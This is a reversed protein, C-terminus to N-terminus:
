DKENYKKLIYKHFHEENYIQNEEIYDYIISKEENIPRKRFANKYENNKISYIEGKEKMEELKKDYFEFLKKDSNASKNFNYNSNELYLYKGKNLYIDRNLNIEIKGKQLLKKIALEIIENLYLEFNKEDYQIENKLYYNIILEVYNEERYKVKYVGNEINIKGSNIM